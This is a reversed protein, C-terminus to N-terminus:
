RLADGGDVSHPSADVGMTTFQVGPVAPYGQEGLVWAISAEPTPEIADAVEAGVEVAGHEDYQVAWSQAPALWAARGAAVLADHDVVEVTYTLTVRYSAVQVHHCCACVGRDLGTPAQGAIGSM